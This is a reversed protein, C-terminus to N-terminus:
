VHARGIKFNGDKDTQVGKKVGKGTINVGQVPNGADDVVKGKITRNQALLTFPIFFLVILLFRVKNM